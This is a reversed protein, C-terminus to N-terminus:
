WASDFLQSFEKVIKKHFKNLFHWRCHLIHETFSFPFGNGNTGECSCFWKRVNFAVLYSQLNLYFMCMRSIISYLALDKDGNINYYPNRNSMNIFSWKCYVNYQGLNLFSLKILLSILFSSLQFSPDLAFMLLCWKDLM